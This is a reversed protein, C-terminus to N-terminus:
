FNSISGLILQLELILFKEDKEVLPPHFANCAYYSFHLGFLYQFYTSIQISPVYSHNFAHKILKQFRKQLYQLKERSM